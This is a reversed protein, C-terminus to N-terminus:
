AEKVTGNYFVLRLAEKLKYARYLQPGIKAICEVKAQQNPTLHATYKGLAIKSNKIETATTDKKPADKESM